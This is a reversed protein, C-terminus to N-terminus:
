QLNITTRYRIRCRNSRVLQEDISAQRRPCLLELDAILPIDLIMDRHFM